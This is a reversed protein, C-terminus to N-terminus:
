FQFYLFPNYSNGVLALVSIALLLIPVFVDVLRMLVPYKGKEEAKQYIKDRLWRGLPTCAVIAVPLFFCNNLLMTTANMQVWSSTGVGFMGALVGGLLQIDEFKFLVWGFYVVILAYIHGIVAPLNIKRLVFKEFILFVCFYLGWLIYNWSAGHWMGTLFWVVVTNRLWKWTNVRSGGMPIYVYDRFFTSLSIHWRRWFDQISKAIYPYNFNELYHFGVMRGMGIAMDSYAAFDLYIQLMYALMGLWLGASSGASLGQMSTPLLSDAITACSNALVAKKALGISFRRIGEALDANNVKRHEIEDAVTQYRVIPGAVCQHFLGAYLLLKWYKKQVPADKRYVDVVYSLVQFTYFSIGIPLVIEPVEKPFGTWFQINELFFGTYKFVGLIALMVICGLIMWLKGSKGREQAKSVWIAFWFSVAVVVLLLALYKPSSWGYFVLSFVLLVANRYKDKVMYYIILNPTLFLFVFLLSSFVM